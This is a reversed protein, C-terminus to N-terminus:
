QNARAGAQGGQTATSAPAEKKLYKGYWALYRELRDQVYTPKRIGHFEGPYIVLQTDVGNAKLAQYMQEGGIVPVNFDKEGGLFLTPTRIKHAEFFPTSLKLWLEKAKWPFGIELDYQEIYQDSGYMSLQMASGAGSTAAKFRHDRWITYDTLIGGYSWGGIGLREPDAIGLKVAHDVGALLDVVEKNGWDAFIASQFEEDRGSSGRYNVQLVAYGNAAFLHREFQFSHGDQGNPGGHIRLLLARRQGDKYDPPLTLLGHVEAGEQSRYAVERASGFQIEKLWEENHRTLQRLASKELAYVEAPKQDSAALVAVRGASANQASVVVRDRLLEVPRGPSAPVAVPLEAMDDTVLVGIGGDPLLVPSSVSRGISSSLITVAGGAAPVAALQFRNYARYKRERGQLFYINKQDSSWLLAVGGRRGGVRDGSTLVKVTAGPKAEVVCVQWESYMASEGARNSLFAINAGDPSWVPSSEERDEAALLEAKKSAVDYLWIRPPKATRYGQRDQKFHYRDIVIPKATKPKEGEKKPPEERETVVIALRKSDPSWAYETVNGQLNTLQSAEGGARNLLWVQGGEERNGRSSVFALWQKDPSWRPQSENEKSTTLRVQTLGDWKVMWIDSDSKDAAKDITTLTYAVWEGEPSVQPDAVERVRHVDDVRLLRPPSTQAFVAWALCLFLFTRAIWTM